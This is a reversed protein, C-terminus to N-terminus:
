VFITHYPIGDYLAAASLEVMAFATCNKGVRQRTKFMTFNTLGIRKAFKLTFVEVKGLEVCWWSMVNHEIIRFCCIINKLIYGYYLM